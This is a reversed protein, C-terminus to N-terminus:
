CSTGSGGSGRPSDVTSRYEIDGSRCSVTKIKEVTGTDLNTWTLMLVDGSQWASVDPTASAGPDLRVTHTSQDSGVLEISTVNAPSAFNNGVAYERYPVTSDSGDAYTLRLLLTGIPDDTHVTTVTVSFAVDSQNEVTVSPSSSLLTDAGLCGTLAVVLLLALLPRRSRLSSM